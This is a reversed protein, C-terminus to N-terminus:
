TQWPLQGPRQLSLWLAEPMVMSSIPLSLQSAAFSSSLWSTFSAFTFLSVLYILFSFTYSASL